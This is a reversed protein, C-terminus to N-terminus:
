APNSQPQPGCNETAARILYFLPLLGLTLISLIVLMKSVPERLQEQQKKVERVFASNQDNLTPRKRRMDKIVVDCGGKACQVLSVESTFARQPETDLFVLNDNKDFRINGFHCDHLGTKEMVKCIKRATEIQQRDNMNIIREITEERSLVEIKECVAFFATIVRSEDDVTIEIGRKEPVVVGPINLARIRNAMVIRTMCADYNISFKMIVNPLDNHSIIKYTPTDGDHTSLLQFGKESVQKNNNTPTSVETWIAHAFFSRVPSLVKEIKSCSVGHFEENDDNILIGQQESSLPQSAYQAPRYCSTFREIVGPM